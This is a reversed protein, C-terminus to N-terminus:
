VTIAIAASAANMSLAPVGACAPDQKLFDAEPVLVEM